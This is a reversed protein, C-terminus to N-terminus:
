PATEPRRGDEDGRGGYRVINPTVDPRPATQVARVAEESITELDSDAVAPHEWVELVPIGARKALAVCHETGRNQTHTRFAICLDAGKKVMLTNRIPGAAKGHLRWNAEHIEDRGGMARWLRGALHDAGPAGGHVLLADPDSKFVVQLVDLMRQANEWFRSGTVLVRLAM